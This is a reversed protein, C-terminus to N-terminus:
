LATWAAKSTHSISAPSEPLLVANIAAEQVGSSARQSTARPASTWACSPQPFVASWWLAKARNL